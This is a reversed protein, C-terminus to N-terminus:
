LNKSLVRQIRKSRPTDLLIEEVSKELASKSDAEVKLSAPEKLIVGKHCVGM